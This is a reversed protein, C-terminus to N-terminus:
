KVIRMKAYRLLIQKQGYDNFYVLVKRNNVPGDVQLVKGMGFKDHEIEMGAQIHSTDGAVFDPSQSNPQPRKKAFSFAPVEKRNIKVPNYDTEPESYEIYEDGIENLFRSPECSLLSGWRFRTQAYTLYAKKQARTLAVYFLRREEEIEERTGMSMQSPFLNEELGVVFVFPFELGKASHITMLTVKDDGDETLDIDTLL